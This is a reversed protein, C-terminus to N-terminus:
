VLLSILLSLSVTPDKVLQKKLYKTALYIHHEITRKSLNLKTAIQDNSMGELRSLKFVRQQVEPLDEILGMATNELEQYVLNYIAKSETLVAEEPVEDLRLNRHRNRIRNLISNRVSIFLYSKFNKSSDLQKRNEWIKIFTEQVIEEAETFDKLYSQAFSLLHNVYRFYLENFATLDGQRLAVM